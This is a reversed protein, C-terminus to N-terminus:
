PGASHQPRLNASFGGVIMGPRNTPQECLGAGYMRNRLKSEMMPGRAEPATATHTDLHWDLVRHPYLNIVVALHGLGQPIWNYTNEATWEPVEGLESFNRSRTGATM